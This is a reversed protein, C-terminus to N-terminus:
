KGGEKKHEKAGRRLPCDKMTGCCPKGEFDAWFRQEERERDRVALALEVAAEAHDGCSSLVKPQHGTGAECICRRRLNVARAAKEWISYLWTGDAMIRLGPGHAGSGRRTVSLRNRALHEVYAPGLRDAAKEARLQHVAADGHAWARHDPWRGLRGAREQLRLFKLLRAWWSWASDQSIVELPDVRAWGLCFTSNENIHRDPCFAPLRIPASERASITGGTLEATINYILSRGDPMPVPITVDLRHPLRQLVAAGFDDAIEALLQISDVKVVAPM